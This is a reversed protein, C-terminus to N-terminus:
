RRLTSYGSFFCKSFFVRALKDRTLPLSFVTKIFNTGPATGRFRKEEDIISQVIHETEGERLPNVM